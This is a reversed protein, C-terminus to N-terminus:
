LIARLKETITERFPNIYERIHFEGNSSFNKWNVPYCIIHNTNKFTKNFYDRERNSDIFFALIKFNTKGFKNIIINQITILDNYYCPQRDLYENIYIAEENTYIFILEEPSNLLEIFRDCRRTNQKILETQSLKLDHVFWNGYYNIYNSDFHPNNSMRFKYLEDNFDPIIEFNGLKNYDVFDTELCDIVIKLTTPIWDFPLTAKKLGLDKLSLSPCCNSGLSVCTISKTKIYESSKCIHIINGNHLTKISLDLGWGEPKDTRTIQLQKTNNDTTIHFDFKDPHPFVFINPNNSQTLFIKKQFWLKSYHNNDTHTKYTKYAIIQNDTLDIIQFNKYNSEDNNKIIHKFRLFSKLDREWPIELTSQEQISKCSKYFLTPGTLDLILRDGCADVSNLFYQQKTLINDIATELTKLIYPNNAISLIIANLYSTTPYNKDLINNREYDICILFEDDYQIIDRFSKKMIIKHDLYCGGELYIYCYRFIDAQFAGAILLDYALLTNKPLKNTNDIIFQRRAVKDFYIHKYEPNLNILNSKVNFYLDPLNNPYETTQVITKPIKQYYDNVKPYIKHKINIHQRQKNIFYTEHKIEDGILFYIKIDFPQLELDDLPLSLIVCNYSDIYFISVSLETRSIDLSTIIEFKNTIHSNM